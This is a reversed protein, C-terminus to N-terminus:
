KPIMWLWPTPGTRWEWFALLRDLDSLDDMWPPLVTTDLIRDLRRVHHSPTFRATLTAAIGPTMCDHCEVLIRANLLGPAAAPDLLDIEAGEIDCIVVTDRTLAMDFEAHTVLGGVEVRDAVGNLRALAQCLDRALPSEDRALIRAQTLRRALGVAYYGEACGIDLIVEPASAVIEEIVPALAAEYCGLLRASRAGEAAKVSYDMGAFPGSLVEGGNRKALTRDILQSRWKALMRLAMHLNTDSAPQEALSRLALTTQIAFDSATM